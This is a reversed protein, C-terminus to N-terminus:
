PMLYMSSPSFNPWGASKTASWDFRIGAQLPQQGVGFEIFRDQTLGGRSFEGFCSGELDAAEVEECFREYLSALREPDHLDGSTYGPVGLTPTSTAM